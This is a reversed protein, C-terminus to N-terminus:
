RKVPSLATGYAVVEISGIAGRANKSISATELKTNFVMIANLERAQQKMRLIAERRARDLLSEYSVVRGGVLARLGALFRKFYDVSVVVNGSVLASSLPGQDMPPVRSNVAIIDKLMQERTIISKYHRKEAARGFFYGLALLTIFIILDYM